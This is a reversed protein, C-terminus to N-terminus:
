PYLNRLGLSVLSRFDKYTRFMGAGCGECSECDPLLYVEGVGISTALGVSQHVELEVRSRFSVIHALGRGSLFDLVYDSVSSSCQQPGSLNQELYCRSCWSSCRDTTCWLLLKSRRCTFISSGLYDIIRNFSPSGKSERFASSHM